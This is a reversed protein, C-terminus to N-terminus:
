SSKDLFSATISITQNQFFVEPQNGFVFAVEELNLNPTMVFGNMPWNAGGVAKPFAWPAFNKVARGNAALNIYIFGGLDIVVHYTQAGDRSDLTTECVALPTMNPYQWAQNRVDYVNIKAKQQCIRETKGIFQGTSDREVWSKEVIFGIDAQRIPTLNRLLPKPDMMARRFGELSFSDAPEAFLAFTELLTAFFVVFSKMNGGVQAELMESM